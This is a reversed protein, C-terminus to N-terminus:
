AAQAKYHEACLKKGGRIGGGALTAGCEACGNSGTSSGATAASSAPQAQRPQSTPATSSKGEPATAAPQQFSSPRGTEVWRLFAGAIALVDVETLNEGGNVRSVAFNVASNLVAERRIDHMEAESKGRYGGGGGTFAPKPHVHPSGDPNFPKWKGTEPDEKLVIPKKCADNLCTKEAM